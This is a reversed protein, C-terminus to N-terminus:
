RLKVLYHAVDPNTFFLAAIGVLPSFGFLLWAARLWRRSRGLLRSNLEIAEIYGDTMAKLAEYETENSAELLLKPEHGPGAWGVPWLPVVCCV